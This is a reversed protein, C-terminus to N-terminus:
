SIKPIFPNWTLKFDSFFWNPGSFTRQFLICVRSYTEFVCLIKWCRMSTFICPALSLNWVSLHCNSFGIATFLGEYIFKLSLLVLRCHIWGKVGLIEHTIRRETQWETRIINTQLIQYQILKYDQLQYIKKIRMVQKSSITDINYPSIRDRVSM